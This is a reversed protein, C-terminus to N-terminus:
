LESGLAGESVDICRGEAVIPIPMIRSIGDHDADFKDILM